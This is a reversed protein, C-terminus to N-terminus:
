RLGCGGGEFTEWAHMEERVHATNVGFVKISRANYGRGLKKKGSAVGRRQSHKAKSRM